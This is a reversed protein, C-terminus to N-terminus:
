DEPEHCNDNLLRGIEECCILIKDIRRRAGPSLQKEQLLL